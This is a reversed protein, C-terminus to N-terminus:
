GHTVSQAIAECPSVPLSNRVVLAALRRTRRTSRLRLSPRTAAAVVLSAWQAHFDSSVLRVQLTILHRPVDRRPATPQSLIVEDDLDVEADPEEAESAIEEEVPWPAYGGGNGGSSNPDFASGRITLDTWRTDASRDV